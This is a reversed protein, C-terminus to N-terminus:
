GYAILGAAAAFFMWAGPSRTEITNVTNGFRGAEAVEVFLGTYFLFAGSLLFAVGRGAHGAVGCAFTMRRIRQSMQELQLDVAFRRRVALYFQFIAIGIIVLGALLIWSSALPMATLLQLIWTRASTVEAGGSTTLGFVLQLATVAIGLHGLGSLAYGMRRLIRTCRKPPTGIKPSVFVQILRRLIFGGLGVAVFAVGLRGVPSAVLLNLAGRTGRVRQGVNVVALVATGGFILYLLGKAAYGLQALRRVWPRAALQESIRVIAHTQRENNPERRQANRTDDKRRGQQNM